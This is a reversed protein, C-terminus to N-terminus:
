VVPCVAASDVKQWLLEGLRLQKQNYYYRFSGSWIEDATGNQPKGCTKRDHGGGNGPHPPEEELAPPADWDDPMPPREDEDYLDEPVEQKKQKRPAAAVFSGSKIQEELRTLRANLAKADLNLEPQCMELLCLEADM